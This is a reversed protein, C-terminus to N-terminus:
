KHNESTADGDTRSEPSAEPPNPRLELLDRIEGAFLVQLGHVLPAVDLTTELLMRDADRRTTVREAALRLGVMAGLDSAGLNLVLTRFNEEAGAPFRGRLQLEVDLADGGRPVIAVALARTGALLSTTGFGDPLTLGDPAYVVLPAGGYAAVLAAADRGRFSSSCRRTPSTVCALLAALPGVAPGGTIVVLDPALAALERREDTLFGARRVIPEDALSEVISMRAGAEEVVLRADLPGRVLLLSAGDDYEAYVAESLTRPDVGTHEAFRALSGPLVLADVVHLAAQSAFLEAPHAVIVFRAGEPVLSVLPGLPPPGPAVMPSPRVTAGGCGVASAAGVMLLAIAASRLVAAALARAPNPPHAPSM